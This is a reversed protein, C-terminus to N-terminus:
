EQDRPFRRRMAEKLNKAMVESESLVGHCPKPLYWRKGSLSFRDDLVRFCRGNQEVITEGDVTKYTGFVKPKTTTKEYLQERKLRQRLVSDFIAENNVLSLLDSKEGGAASVNPRRNSAKRTSTPSRKTVPTPLIQDITKVHRSQLPVLNPTAPKEPSLAATPRSVIEIQFRQTALAHSDPQQFHAGGIVLTNVVLLSTLAAIATGWLVIPSALRYRSVEDYISTM